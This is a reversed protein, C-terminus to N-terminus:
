HICVLGTSDRVCHIPHVRHRIQGQTRKLIQFLCHTRLTRLAHLTRLRVVEAVAVRVTFTLYPINPLITFVINLFAVGTLFMTAIHALHDGYGDVPDMEFVPLTTATVAANTAVFPM